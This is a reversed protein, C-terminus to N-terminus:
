ASRTAATGATPRPLSGSGNWRPTSPQRRTARPWCRSPRRSGCCTRGAPCSATSARAGRRARRRAPARGGSRRPGAARGHGGHAADPRAADPDAHDQGLRQARAHGAGFRGPSRSRDRRGRRTTASCRACVGCGRLPWPRRLWPRRPLDGRCHRPCCRSPCPAWRSAATTPSSRPDRRRDQDATRQGLVRQHAHRAGALSSPGTAPQEAPVKEVIVRDWGDGVATPKDRQQQQADRGARGDGDRRAPPTFTFLAPDQPGFTLDTFGVQLAPADLGAGARDAAVADAGARRRRDRVERLLTRETPKPPWCSSTRRRPGRGRRHRGRQRHQHAAARRHADTAAKTPDAMTPRTRTPSAPARRSRATTPTGRGSRRATPSSRASAPPAPSRSAARATAAPGSRRPARATRPRRCTPCRPCASRRQGAAVTGDFPGPNPAEAGLERPGGALRAAVRAACGCRGPPRAAGARRRGRGRDGSRHDSSPRPRDTRETGDHRQAEDMRGSLVRMAAPYRGRTARTRTTSSSGPM